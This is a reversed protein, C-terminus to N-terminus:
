GDSIVNEGMMSSMRVCRTDDEDQGHGAAGSDAHHGTWTAGDPDRRAPLRQVAVRDRATIDAVALVDSTTTTATINSRGSSNNNHSNNNHSNNNHRRRYSLM